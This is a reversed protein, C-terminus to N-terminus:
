YLYYIVTTAKIKVLRELLIEWYMTDDDFMEAIIDSIAQENGFYALSTIIRVDYEKRIKYLEEIYPAAEQADLRVLTDITWPHLDTKLLPILHPIASRDGIRGLAEIANM